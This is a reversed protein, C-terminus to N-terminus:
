KGSLKELQGVVTETDKILKNLLQDHAQGALQSTNITNSGILSSDSKVTM